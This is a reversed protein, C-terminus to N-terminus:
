NGAILVYDLTKKRVFVTPAMWPSNSEEILGQNLMVQWQRLVEDKFYAPTKRPPVKTPSGM